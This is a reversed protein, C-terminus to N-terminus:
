VDNAAQEDKKEKMLDVYTILSNCFSRVMHAGVVQNRKYEDLKALVNKAVMVGGATVGRQFAYELEAKFQEKFKETLKEDM